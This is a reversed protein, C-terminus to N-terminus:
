EDSTTPSACRRAEVVASWHLRLLDDGHTQAETEELIRGMDLGRGRCWDEIGGVPVGGQLLAAAAFVFLQPEECIMDGVAAIAAPWEEGFVPFALDLAEGVFLPPISTPRMRDYALLVRVHSRIESFFERRNAPLAGSRLLASAVRILHASPM